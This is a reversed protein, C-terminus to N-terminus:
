EIVKTAAVLLTPPITVGLERATKLNVALEYDTSLDAALDGPAAGKL